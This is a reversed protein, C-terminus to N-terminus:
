RKRDREQAAFIGNLHLTEQAAVVEKALDTLKRRQKRAMGRLLDFAELRGIDHQVMTVGVAVNTDRDSDLAMQLQTRVKRLEGLEAACALAAEIAPLLQVVDVPKVLYGLAGASTAQEVTAADSYASLMVFPAGLERLRPALELGSREPMVVDLIAIDPSEGSDLLKEAASVSEAALVICGAEALGGGLVELVAPDDDVLLITRKIKVPIALGPAIFGKENGSM